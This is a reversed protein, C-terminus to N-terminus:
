GAAQGRNGTGAAITFLNSEAVVVPGAAGARPDALWVLQHMRTIAPVQHRPVHSPFVPAGETDIADIAFDLGRCLELRALRRLSVENGENRFRERLHGIWAPCAYSQMRRDFHDGLAYRRGGSGQFCAAGSGAEQRRSRMGPFGDGNM